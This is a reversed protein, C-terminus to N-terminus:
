NKIFEEIKLKIKPFINEQLTKIEQNSFNQLVFIETPPTIKNERSEIGIRIRHFDQAGLNDIISQIGRHGASSSNNTIRIEGFSLDVDDHIILIEKKPNLKYFNVVEMLALGSDNMYTQPKLFIVKNEKEQGEVESPIFWTFTESKFEHGPKATMFGDNDNLIFDLVMFGANHRNHKYKEGPNGLGVILKM